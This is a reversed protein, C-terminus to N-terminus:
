KFLHFFGSKNEKKKNPHTLEIKYYYVGDTVTKGKYNGDWLPVKKVENNNVSLTDTNIENGWRNFISYCM